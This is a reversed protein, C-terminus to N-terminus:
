IERPAHKLEHLRKLLNDSDKSLVGCLGPGPRVVVMAKIKRDSMLEDVLAPDAKVWIIHRHIKM